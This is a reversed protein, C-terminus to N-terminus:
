NTGAKINVECGVLRQLEDIMRGKVPGIRPRQAIITVDVNVVEFKGARLEDVVTTLFVSSAAGKWTVDTDPFRQGIDGQGSAGLLADVIAHIVVDGDSHAVASIGEGGAGGGMMLRGGERLRHIDYEHGIRITM